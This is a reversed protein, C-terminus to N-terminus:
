LVYLLLFFPHNKQFNRKICSKDSVRCVNAYFVDNACFICSLFRNNKVLHPDLLPPPSLPGSGGGGRSFRLNYPNRYPILLQVGGMGRSFTPGGELVKFFHYNDKFNVM